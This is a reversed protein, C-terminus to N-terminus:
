QNEKQALNAVLHFIRTVDRKEEESLQATIKDIYNLTEQHQIMFLSNEDHIM